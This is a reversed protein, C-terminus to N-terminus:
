TRYLDSILGVEPSRLGSTLPRLIVGDSTYQWYIALAKHTLFDVLRRTQHATPEASLFVDLLKKM